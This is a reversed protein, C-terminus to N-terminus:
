TGRQRQLPLLLKPKPNPSQLKQQSPPYLQFEKDQFDQSVQSDRFVLFVQSLLSSHSHHFILSDLFLLFVLFAQNKFHHPFHWSRLQLSHSNRPIPPFKRTPTKFSAQNKTVYTPNSLPGSLSFGLQSFTLGKSERSSTFHLHLQQQSWLM